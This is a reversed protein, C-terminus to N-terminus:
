ETVQHREIIPWCAKFSVRGTIFPIETTLNANGTQDGYGFFYNASLQFTTKVPITADTFPPVPNANPGFYAPSYNINQTHAITTTLFFLFFYKKM